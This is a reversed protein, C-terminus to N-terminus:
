INAICEVMVYRHYKKKNIVVDGVFDYAAGVGYVTYAPIKNWKTVEINIYEPKM